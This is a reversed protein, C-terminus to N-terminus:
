LSHVHMSCIRLLQVNADLTDWGWTRAKGDNSGSPAGNSVNHCGNKRPPSTGCNSSSSQVLWLEKPQPSYDYKHISLGVEFMTKELYVLFSQNPISAIELQTQDIQFICRVFMHRYNPPVRHNWQWALTLNSVRNGVLSLDLFLSGRAALRCVVVWCAPHPKGGSRSSPSFSLSPDEFDDWNILLYWKQSNWRRM